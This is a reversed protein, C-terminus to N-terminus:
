TISPRDAAPSIAGFARASRAQTRMERLRHLRRILLPDFVLAEPRDLVANLLQYYRAANLGFTLRIAEDKAGTTPWSGREFSLVDRDRQSLGAITLIQGPPAPTFDDSDAVEDETSESDKIAPESEEGTSENEAGAPGTM